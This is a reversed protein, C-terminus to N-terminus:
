PRGRTQRSAAGRRVVRVLDGKIQGRWWQRIQRFAVRMFPRPAIHGGEDLTGFELGPAKAMGTGVRARKPSAEMDISNRLTGFDPAPPHGPASARHLRKKGRRYLRGTGPLSLVQKTQRVLSLALTRLTASNQASVNEGVQLLPRAIAAGPMRNGAAASRFGGTRRPPM